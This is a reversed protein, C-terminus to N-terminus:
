SKLVCRLSSSTRLRDRFPPVRSRKESASSSGDMKGTVSMRTPGSPAKYWICTSELDLRLIARYERSAAAVELGLRLALGLGLTVDVGPVGPVSAVGEATPWETVDPAEAPVVGALQSGIDTATM